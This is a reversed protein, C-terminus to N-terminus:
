EQQTIDAFSLVKLYGSKYNFTIAYSKKTPALALGGVWHMLSGKILVKMVKPDPFIEEPYFVCSINQKKVEQKEQHLISVFDHYFKADTYQLLIAHNSDINTPTINLRQGIFFLAMQRLYSADVSSSSVTFAQSMEVPIITRNQNTCSWFVLWVLFINSILLGISILLLYHLRGSLMQVKTQATQYEM